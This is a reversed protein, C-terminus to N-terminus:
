WVQVSVLIPPGAQGNIVRTQIVAEINKEEWHAPLQAILAQLTSDSTMYEVASATGNRGIGAAVFIPKDSTADHLRAVIAYDKTLQSYPSSFDVHWDVNEPHQADAILANRTGPEVAFHFRLQETVRLTWPNDLGAILVVPAARLDAYTTHFGSLTRYTHKRTSFLAAFSELAIADVL